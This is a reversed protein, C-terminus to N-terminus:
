ASALDISVQEWKAKHNARRHFRLYEKTGNPRISERIARMAELWRPDKFDMRLLGYMRAPSVQGEKDVQFSDQVLTRLEPGATAAWETLCEDVLVKATQLSPGFQVVDAQAVTVKFLGDFTQLTMNGKAGGATAGYEQDLVSLYDAVDAQTHDKFRTIQASLDMAFAIIKRVTEDELLDQSKIGEVPMWAGKANQMYANGDIIKEGAKLARTPEAAVTNLTADDAM